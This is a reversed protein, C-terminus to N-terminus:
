APGGHRGGGGMPGSEADHDREEVLLQRQRARHLLAEGHEAVVGRPRLEQQHVVAGGVAGRLLGARQLSLVRADGDQPVLGVAAVACRQPRAERRGRAHVHEVRVSVQGDPQLVEDLRQWQELLVVEDDPVREAPALRRPSPDVRGPVARQNPEQDAHGRPVEVEAELEDAAVEQPL